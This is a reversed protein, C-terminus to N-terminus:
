HRFVTDGFITRYSKVTGFGVHPASFSIRVTDIIPAVTLVLVYAVLPFILALEFGHRRVWGGLGPRTQVRPGGGVAAAEGGAMRSRRAPVEKAGADGCPRTGRLQRLHGARDGPRLLAAEGYGGATRGPGAGAGEDESRTPRRVDVEGRKGAPPPERAGRRRRRARAGQHGGHAGDPRQGHLPDGGPLRAGGAF